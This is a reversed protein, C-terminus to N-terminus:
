SLTCGRPNPKTMASPCGASRNTGRAARPCAMSPSQTRASTVAPSRPPRPGSPRIASTTRCVGRRKMPVNRRLPLRGATSGSSGASPRSIKRSPSACWPTSSPFFTMTRTVARPQPNSPSLPSIVSTSPSAPSGASSKRLTTFRKSRGTSKGKATWCCTCSSLRSISPSAFRLDSRLPKDQKVMSGTSARSKSSATERSGSGPLPYWRPTCM